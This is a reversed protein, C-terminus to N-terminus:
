NRWFLHQGASYVRHHGPWVRDSYKEDGVVFAELAGYVEKITEGITGQLRLPTDDQHLGTKEKMASIFDEVAGRFGHWHATGYGLSNWYNFREELERVSNNLALWDGREAYKFMAQIEPPVVNTSAYAQAKKVAVFKKLMRVTEPNKIRNWASRKAQDYNYLALAAAILVVLLLAATLFKKM